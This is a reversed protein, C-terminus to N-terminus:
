KENIEEAGTTKMLDKIKKVEKEDGSTHIEM